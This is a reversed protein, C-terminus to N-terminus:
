PIVKIQKKILPVLFSRFTSAVEDRESRRSYLESISVELVDLLTFRGQSSSGSTFNKKKIIKVRM